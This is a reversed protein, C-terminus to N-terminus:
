TTHYRLIWKLNNEIDIVGKTFKVINKIADYESMSSVTGSLTVIGEEVKVDVKHGDVHVSNQMSIIILNAIEKDSIREESVILIKNSVSVVGSIQSAMKRIKNSKWFSNVTGELVVNGNNISVKVNNSDIESNADLLCFMAEKVDQDSPIEHSGPFKVEIDNIVSKIEPVMQTEIEALIKEPYTSVCGKLTAIDGHIYIEIQSEDIRNDWTLRERVIKELKKISNGKEM